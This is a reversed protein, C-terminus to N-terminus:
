HDKCATKSLFLRHLGEAVYCLQNSVRKRGDKGFGIITIRIGGLLEIGQNNAANIGNALPILEGRKVGLKHVLDIGCVVM